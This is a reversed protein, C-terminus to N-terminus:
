CNQKGECELKMSERLFTMVAGLTDFYRMDEREELGSILINNKRHGELPSVKGDVMQQREEVEKVTQKIQKYNSIV